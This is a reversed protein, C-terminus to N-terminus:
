DLAVDLDPLAIDGFQGSLTYTSNQSAEVAAVAVDLTAGPALTVDYGANQEGIYDAIPTGDQAVNLTIYPATDVKVADTGTNELVVRVCLYRVGGADATYAYMTVNLGEQEAFSQLSKDFDVDPVSEPMGLYVPATYCGEYENYPFMVDTFEGNLFMLIRTYSMLEVQGEGSGVFIGALYKEPYYFEVWDYMQKWEDIEDNLVDMAAREVNEVATIRRVSFSAMDAYYLDSPYLMTTLGGTKYLISAPSSLAANDADPMDFMTYLSNDLLVRLTQHYQSGDTDIANAKVVDSQINELAGATNLPVWYVFWEDGASAIDAGSITISQAGEYDNQEAIFTGHACSLTVTDINDLMFEIPLGRISSMTPLYGRTYDRIITAYESVTELVQDSMDTDGDVVTASVTSTPTSQPSTDLVNEDATTCSILMVAVMMVALAVAAVKSPKRRQAIRQIRKKMNSGGRMTTATSGVPPRVPMKALLGILVHGYKLREDASMEATVREDCSLEGDDRSLKAALWVLPHFWYAACLLMRVLAILTDGQRIHAMEHKLAYAMVRDDDMCRETLVVHRHWLGWVCPSAASPSVYVRTRKPLPMPTAIERANKMLAHIYRINATILYGLVLVTGAIWVILLIDAFGLHVATAAGTSETPAASQVAQVAPETLPALTAPATTPMVSSATGSVTNAAEGSATLLNMISWRSSVSIPILLRAAPILWLAYLARASVRNRMLVRAALMMLMLFGSQLAIEIIRNM